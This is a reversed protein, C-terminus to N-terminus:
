KEVGAQFVIYTYTFGSRAYIGYDGYPGSNKNIDKLLTINLKGDTIQIDFADRDSELYDSFYLETDKPLTYKVIEGVYNVNGIIKKYEPLSNTEPYALIYKLSVGTIVNEKTIPVMIYAKYYSVGIEIARNGSPFDLIAKQDYIHYLHNTTVAVEQSINELNIKTHAGLGYVKGMDTIFCASTKFNHSKNIYVDSVGLLTKGNEENMMNLAISGEPEKNEDDSSCSIFNVTCLLLLIGLLKKSKM